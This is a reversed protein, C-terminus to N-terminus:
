DVARSWGIQVDVPFLVTVYNERRERRETKEGKEKRKKKRKNM